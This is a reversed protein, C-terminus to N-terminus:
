LKNSNLKQFLPSRNCKSHLFIPDITIKTVNNAISQLEKKGIKRSIKIERCDHFGYLLTTINHTIKKYLTIM